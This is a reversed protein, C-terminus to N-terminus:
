NKFEERKQFFYIIGVPFYYIVNIWNNFFNSTPALPWLTILISSVILIYHSKYISSNKFLISTYQKAIINMFYIFVSFVILFSVLGTEALLQIYSNHPHTSCAFEVYFPLDDCYYRFMKPGIGLFPEEFFMKLSSTYHAHHKESFIFIGKDNYIQDKVSVFYRLFIEHNFFIIFVILFVILCIFLIKINTNFEKTCFIFLLLPILSLAFATREQSFLTVSLAIVLILLIIYKAYYNKELYKYAILSCFIPSLRVIYTGLIGDENTGFFSNLGGHDDIPYGTLNYGYLYQILTDLYIVSFTLTFSFILYKIFNVNNELIFYISLSFFLFRFYFFSSEISILPEYSFITSTIIIFYFFIFFNVLKNKFFNKIMKLNLFIFILGMISIILDPLFPGTVLSPPILLGLIFNLNIFIKRIELTM